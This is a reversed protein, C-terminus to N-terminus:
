DVLNRYIFIKELEGKIDLGMIKNKNVEGLYAHMVHHKFLLLSLISDIMEKFQGYTRSIARLSLDRNLWGFEM